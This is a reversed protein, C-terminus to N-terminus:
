EGHQPSGRLQNGLNNKSALKERVYKEIAQKRHLDLSSTFEIKREKEAANAFDGFVIDEAILRAYVAEEKTYYRGLHCRADGVRIEPSYRNRRSDYSIGSFGSTNTDDNRETITNQGQTCIRLNNRCNNLPNGDIHDVVTSDQGKPIDLVIHSLERQQRIAPQETVVHNHSLRWKHYKVKEIDALDVTFVSIKENKQNYLNFYVIDNRISYDNLDHITRPINDLFKGHNLLQHMHKSCLTHGGLRNKKHMPRGCVDCYYM